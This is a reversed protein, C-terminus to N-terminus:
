QQSQRTGIEKWWAKYKQAEEEARECRAILLAIEKIHPDKECILAHQNMKEESEVLDDPYNYIFKYGCYTCRMYHSVSTDIEVTILALKEELEKIYKQDKNWKKSSLYVAEKLTNIETDKKTPYGCPCPISKHEGFMWCYDKSM